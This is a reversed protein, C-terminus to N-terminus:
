TDNLYVSGHGEIEIDLPFDPFNQQVKYVAHKLSRKWDKYPLADKVPHMGYMVSFLNWFRELTIVNNAFM